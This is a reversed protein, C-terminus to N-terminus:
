LTSDKEGKAVGLAYFTPVFLIREGSQRASLDIKKLQKLEQHNIVLDEKQLDSEIVLWETDWEKMMAAQNWQGGLLGCEVDEIGAKHFYAALKRGTEPDAGQLKLSKIQSFALQSLQIPYDIRGGYDPEAFAAVVGDPRTVRKMEKLVLVPDHIWLLVFHCFVLDFTYDPFPLHFANGQVFNSQASITVAKRLFKPNIDLGVIVAESLRSFELALIGTGCGVDLIFRFQRLEFKQILYQRLPSTWNSQQLFRLHWNM